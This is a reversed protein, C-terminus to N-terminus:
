LSQVERSPDHARMTAILNVDSQPMQYLMQLSGLSLGSISELWSLDVESAQEPDILVRRIEGMKPLKEPYGQQLFHELGQAQNVFPSCISCRLQEDSVGHLEELYQEALVRLKNLKKPTNLLANLQKVLQGKFRLNDKNETAAKRLYASAGQDYDIGYKCSSRLGHLHAALLVAATQPEEFHLLKSARVGEVFMLVQSNLVDIECSLCDFVNIITIGQPWPDTQTGFPLCLAHKFDDDLRSCMKVAAEFEGGQLDSLSYGHQVAVKLVWEAYEDLHTPPRRDILADVADGWLCAQQYLKARSLFDGYFFTARVDGQSLHGSMLVQQRVTASSVDEPSQGTYLDHVGQEDVLLLEVRSDDYLFLESCQVHIRKMVQATIRPQRLVAVRLMFTTPSRGAISLQAARLLALTYACEKGGEHIVLIRYSGIRDLGGAAVLLRQILLQLAVRELRNFFGLLRHLVQQYVFSMAQKHFHSM